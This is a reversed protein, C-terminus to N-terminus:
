PSVKEIQINRIKMGSIGSPQVVPAIDKLLLAELEHIKIAPLQQSRMTRLVIVKIDDRRLLLASRQEPDNFFLELSLNIVVDKRNEVTCEIPSLLISCCSGSPRSSEPSSQGTVPAVTKQASIRPSPSVVPESPAVANTVAADPQPLASNGGPASVDPKDRVEATTDTSQPSSVAPEAEVVPNGSGSSTSDILDRNNLYLIVGLACLPGSILLLLLFKKRDNRRSKEWSSENM